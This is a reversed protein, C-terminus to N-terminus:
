RESEGTATSPDAATPAPPAESTSSADGAPADPRPPTVPPRLRWFYVFLGLALPFAALSILQSTALTGIPTEWMVRAKDDGRTLEILSREISYLLFYLAALAGPHPLLRTRVALLVGFITFKGLSMLPQSPLLAVGKLEDPLLAKEHTFTVTAWEPWWMGEHWPKGYDDGAMLCGIRGIAHGLVMSIAFIDSIVLKQVKYVKMRWLAVPIAAIPGGYWVLGGQRLNLPQYWPMEMYSDWNILVFLVRSGVLGALFVEVALSGVQEHDLGLRICERKVWQLAAIAGLLVMVGFTHLTFPWEFLIPFM